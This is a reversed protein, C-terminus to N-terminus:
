LFNLINITLNCKENTIKEPSMKKESPELLDIKLVSDDQAKQKETQFSYEIKESTQM